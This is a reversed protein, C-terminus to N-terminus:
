VWVSSLLSCSRLAWSHIRSPAACVASVDLVQPLLNRPLLRLLPLMTARQTTERM